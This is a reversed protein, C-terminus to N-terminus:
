WKLIKSFHILMYWILSFYFYNFKYDMLHFYTTSISYV